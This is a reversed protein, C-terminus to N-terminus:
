KVYESIPPRFTSNHKRCALRYENLIRLNTFPINFATEPLRPPIREFYSSSQGTFPRATAKGTKKQGLHPSKKDLEPDEFPAM